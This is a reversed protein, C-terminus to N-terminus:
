SKTLWADKFVAGSSYNDPIDLVGKLRPSLGTITSAWGWLIEGGEEWLQRQLQNYLAKRRKPDLTKRAQAFRADWAPRRWGTYNLSATSLYVFNWMSPARIDSNLYSLIPVTSLYRDLNARFDAYPLDVARAAEADFALRGNRIALRGSVTQGSLSPHNATAPYTGTQQM